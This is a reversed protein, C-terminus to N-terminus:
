LAALTHALTALAVASLTVSGTEATPSPEGILDATIEGDATKAIVLVTDDDLTIQGAHDDGPEHGGACWSPCPTAVSFAGEPTDAIVDHSYGPGDVSAVYGSAERSFSVEFGADLLRRLEDAHPIISM